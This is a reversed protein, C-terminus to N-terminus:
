IVPSIRSGHFLNWHFRWYDLPLNQLQQNSRIKVYVSSLNPNIIAGCLFSSYFYSSVWLKPTKGQDLWIYTYRNLLSDIALEALINDALIGQWSVINKFLKLASYFQRQFFLLHTSHPYELLAQFIKLIFLM